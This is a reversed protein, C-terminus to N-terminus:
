RRGDLLVLIAVLRRQERRMARARDLEVGEHEYGLLHLLGHVLLELLEDWTTVRRRRAQRAAQPLCIVVDGLLHPQLGAGVGERQAFSLVDTSRDKGRYERNLAQMEADDTLVVSLEHDGFGLEALLRQARRQLRARDIAPTNRRKTLHVVM